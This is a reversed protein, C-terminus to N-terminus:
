PKRVTIADDCGSVLVAVLFQDNEGGRCRGFHQLDVDPPQVRQENRRSTVIPNGERVLALFHEDHM